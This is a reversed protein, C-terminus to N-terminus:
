NLNVIFSAPDHFDPREKKHALAFYSISQQQDEIVAALSIDGKILPIKVKLEFLSESLGAQIIPQKFDKFDFDRERYNTFHYVAYDGSPSFNFETYESSKPNKVFFELCTHKWLEDKFSTSSNIKPLLLQNLPGKIQYCLFLESGKIEVQTQLEFPSSAFSILKYNM